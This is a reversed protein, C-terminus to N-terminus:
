MPGFLVYRVILARLEPLEGEHGRFTRPIGKKRKGPFVVYTIWDEDWRSTVWYGCLRLLADADPQRSWEYSVMSM